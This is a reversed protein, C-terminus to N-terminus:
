SYGVLGLEGDRRGRHWVYTTILSFSGVEEQPSSSISSMTNDKHLSPYSPEAVAAFQHEFNSTGAGGGLGAASRRVPGLVPALARSLFM